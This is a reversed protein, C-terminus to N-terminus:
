KKVAPPPIPLTSSAMVPLSQSPPAMVIQILIRTATFKSASTIDEKASVMLLDGTKIDKLEVTKKDFPIPPMIPTTTAGSSGKKSKELFENMEKKMVDASKQTLREIVTDKDVVVTRQSPAKPAFPLQNSKMTIETGSVSEVMGAIDHVGGPPPTMAGPAGGAGLPGRSSNLGAVYGVGGALVAAAIVSLILTLFQPKNNEGNM